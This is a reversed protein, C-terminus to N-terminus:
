KSPGSNAAGPANLFSDLLQENRIHNDLPMTDQLM